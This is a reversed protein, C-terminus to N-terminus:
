GATSSSGANLRKLIDRLDRWGYTVDPLAMGYVEWVGEVGLPEAGLKEYFRRAHHADRFAWLAASRCGSALLHAAMLRLLERGLGRGQTRRLLYLSTIEGEFGLPLLKESRQRRCLAFGAVGAADEVLWVRQAADAGGEGFIAQWRLTWEEADLSALTAAPMMAAYTERWSAIHAAAIAPADEPTAIRVRSGSTAM